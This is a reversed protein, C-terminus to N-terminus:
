LLEQIYIELEEGSIVFPKRVFAKNDELGYGAYWVLSEAKPWFLRQGRDAVPIDTALTLIRHVDEVTAPKENQLLPVLAFGDNAGKYICGRVGHIASRQGTEVDVVVVSRRRTQTTLDAVFSRITHQPYIQRDM